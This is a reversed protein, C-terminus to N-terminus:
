LFYFEPQLEQGIYNIFDHQGNVTYWVIIYNGKKFKGHISM